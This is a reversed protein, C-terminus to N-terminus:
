AWRGSCQEDRLLRLSRASAWASDLLLSECLFLNSGRRSLCFAVCPAGWERVSFHTTLREELVRESWSFDIRDLPSFKANAGLVTGVESITADTSLPSHSALTGGTVASVARVSMMPIRCFLVGGGLLMVGSSDRASRLRLLSSEM